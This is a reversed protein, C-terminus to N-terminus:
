LLAAAELCWDVLAFRASEKSWNRYNWEKGSLDDGCFLVQGLVVNRFQAVAFLAAAEMEVTHCGEAVRLAIKAETERYPADTTWTKAKIYPFNDDKLKNELVSLAYANCAVERSPKLYHYSVGEDRVAAYPLVFDGLQMGKQLVGAGGCVIFKEFGMAILDELQRAAGPAGWFGVVLGVRVSQVVAEYIPLTVFSIRFPVIEKLQETQVKHEVVDRFFAIVCVKPVDQKSIVKSPGIKATTVPDFELIPFQNSITMKTEGQNTYIQRKLPLDATAGGVYM